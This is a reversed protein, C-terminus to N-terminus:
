IDDQMTPIGSLTSLEYEKALRKAEYESWEGNGHLENYWINNVYKVVAYGNFMLLKEVKFTVVKKETNVKQTNM